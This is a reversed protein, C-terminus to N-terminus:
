GNLVSLTGGIALDKVVLVMGNFVSRVLPLIQTFNVWVLLAPFQTFNVWVIMPPPPKLQGALAPYKYDLPYREPEYGGPCGTPPLMRRFINGDCPLGYTPDLAPPSPVPM